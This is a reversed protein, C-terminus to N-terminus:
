EELGALILIEEREGKMEKIGMSLRNAISALDGKVVFGCGQRSQDVVLM